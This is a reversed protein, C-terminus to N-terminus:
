SLQYKEMVRVTEASAYWDAWNLELTSVESEGFDTERTKKLFELLRKSNLCARSFRMMTVHAGLAKYRRDLMDGLGNGAFAERIADRIAELSGDLSQALVMVSDPSATVGRFRVKFPHHKKLLEQLIQACKPVREMEKQWHETGSFIALVTLHLEEPRYFHQEPCIEKLRKIYETLANRVSVSPRYVLTVGRRLDISKNLIFPDIRPKGDEFASVAENWLKEYKELKLTM